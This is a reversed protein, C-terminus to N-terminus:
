YRGLTLVLTLYYSSANNLKSPVSLSTGLFHSTSIPWYSLQSSCVVSLRSTSPELGNQGVVELLSRFLLWSWTGELDTLRARWFPSSLRSKVLTRHVSTVATAKGCFLSDQGVVERLVSVSTEIRISAENLRKFLNLSAGQFSFMTIIIICNHSPLMFPFKNKFFNPLICNQRFYVEFMHAQM